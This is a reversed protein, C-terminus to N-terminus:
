LSRALKPILMWKLVGHPPGQRAPTDIRLLAAKKLDISLAGELLFSTLRGLHPQHGVLLVRSVDPNICAEKWVSGVAASPKLCDTLVVECAPFVAAAIDATEQARRLPSTLILNLTGM